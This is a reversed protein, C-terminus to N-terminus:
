VFSNVLSLIIGGVMAYALATWLNPGLVLQRSPVKFLNACTIVSLSAVSSMTGAGWGILHAQMLLAPHADAHGGSFVALMATSSIVPHVGFVSALMMGLPTLIIAVYGPILGDYFSDILASFADTRTAFYGILMAMSIIMIDDATAVMSNKTDVLITSISQPHRLFQIAVLVPMVVVVASLATFDFALAAALVSGLVILLRITVPRLCRMAASLKSISFTRNLMPLSILAFIITTILGIGLSIWSNTNDTFSQGIAFAVFFPSWAAATVMGRLASEAALRRRKADADPPVAASLIALSGTNIVSGFINAALHFGSASASAPLQALAQQTLRVSPMTLATARVLAMTPLLATFILVYRGAARLEDISPRHDLLFWGVLALLLLILITDRRLRSLTLLVFGAFAIVGIDAFAHSSQGIMVQLLAALWASSLLILRTPNVMPRVEFM